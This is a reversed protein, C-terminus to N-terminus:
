YLAGIEWDAKVNFIEWRFLRIREELNLLFYSNDIIRNRGYGDSYERQIRLM